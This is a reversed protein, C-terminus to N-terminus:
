RQAPGGFGGALQGLLQGPLAVPDGRVRHAVQQALLAEAQLAIGLRQFALLVGVPVCLEVVEVLLRAVVLIATSRHDTHVRLLLLQDARELVVATFPLRSALRHPDVGVVEGVAHQAPRYGVADVVDGRVGAPDVDAGVM